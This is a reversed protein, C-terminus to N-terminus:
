FRKAAHCNIQSVTLKLQYIVLTYAYNSQLRVGWMLNTRQCLFADKPYPVGGPDPYWDRIKDDGGKYEKAARNILEPAVEHGVLTKNWPLQFLQVDLEEQVTAAQKVRNAEIDTLILASILTLVAGVLELGDRWDPLAIVVFPAALELLLVAAIRVFHIRKALSYMRKQAALLRLNESTNQEQAINMMHASRKWPTIAWTALTMRLRLQPRPMACKISICSPPSRLSSLRHGLKIVYKDEFSMEDPEFGLERFFQAVAVRVEEEDDPQFTQPIDKLAM